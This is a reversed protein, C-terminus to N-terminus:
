LILYPKVLRISCDNIEIAAPRSQRGVNLLSCFNLIENIRPGFGSRKDKRSIKCSRTSEEAKILPM